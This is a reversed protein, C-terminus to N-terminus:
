QNGVAATVFDVSESKPTWTRDADMGLAFLRQKKMVQTDTSWFAQKSLKWAMRHLHMANTASGAHDPIRQHGVLLKDCLQITRRQGWGPHSTKASAPMAPPPLLGYPDM